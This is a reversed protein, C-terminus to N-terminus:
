VNNATTKIRKTVIEMREDNTMDGEIEIINCDLLEIWKKHQTINRGDFSEDDYKEAWELFEKSKSIIENDSKLKEGYMEIERKKLREMRITKPLRLFIGLDFATNWYESWTILSGSIIVEESQIFDNKLNENRKQQPLKIQFPPNTKKWYYADADLHIYNLRKALTKSLTTTGSGSAGFIIIKM